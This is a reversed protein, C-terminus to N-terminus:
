WKSVDNALISKKALAGVHFSMSIHSQSGYKEYYVDYM